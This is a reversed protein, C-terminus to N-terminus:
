RLPMPGGAGPGGHGGPGGPGGMPQAPRMDNTDRALDIVIDVVRWDRRHKKLFERAFEPDGAASPQDALKNLETIFAADECVATAKGTSRYRLVPLTVELLLISKVQRAEHELRTQFDVAGGQQPMAPMVYGPQLILAMMEDKEKATRKQRSEDWRVLSKAMQDAEPFYLSVAPDGPFRRLIKFPVHAGYPYAM